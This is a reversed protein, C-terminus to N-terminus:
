LDKSSYRDIFHQNKFLDFFTSIFKNLSLQNIVFNKELEQWKRKRLKGTKYLQKKDKSVLDLKQLTKLKRIVTARPIGTIESISSANIGLVDNKDNTLYKSFDLYSSEIATAEKVRSTNMKLPETSHLSQLRLVHNTYVSMAIIGTELDGYFIRSRINLPIIFRFFFKWIVTFNKRTFQEIDESSVPSGFWDETALYSSCKSLFKSISKISNKPKQLKFADLTLFIRKESRSLIKGEIMENIKRRVTEKPMKLESAIETLNIKEITFEGKSYFDEESFVIFLDSYHEFSKQILNIMILYKDMDYFTKYANFFWSSLFNFWYPSIKSFNASMVNSVEKKDVFEEKFIIEKKNKFDIQKINTKNKTELEDSM